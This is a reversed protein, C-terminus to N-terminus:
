VSIALSMTTSANATCFFVGDPKGFIEKALDQYLTSCQGYYDGLDDNFYQVVEKNFVIYTLPNSYIGNLTKIFSVAANGKFITEFLGSQASRFGNPPVVTIRTTVNGWSKEMPLVQLLADAKTDNAVYLTISKDEDDYVVRIEDDQQFLTEIKRYYEVWPSVMKMAM